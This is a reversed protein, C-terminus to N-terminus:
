LTYVAVRYIIIIIITIFTRRSKRHFRNCAIITNYKLLIGIMISHKSHKHIFYTVSSVFIILSTKQKKGGYFILYLYIGDDYVLYFRTKEESCDPIIRKEYLVYMIGRGSLINRM